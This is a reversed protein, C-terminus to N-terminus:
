HGALQHVTGLKQLGLTARDYLYVERNPENRVSLFYRFLAVNQPGLDHARIVRSDHPFIVSTNYVPEEDPASSQPTYRFLVLAKRDAAQLQSELEALDVAIVPLEGHFYGPGFIEPDRVTPNICPFSGCSLAIMAFAPVAQCLTPTYKCTLREVGFISLLILGPAVVIMYHPIFFVYFAYFGVFFLVSVLLTIRVRREGNARFPLTAAVGIPLLVAFFPHPLGFSLLAALRDTWWTQFLKSPTHREYLSVVMQENLVRKQLLPPKPVKAPDIRHFGLMPAPYTEDAYRAEPFEWWQGTMGHNQFGQLALFPLGGLLLAVAQKAYTGFSANAAALDLMMAVGIPIAYCLADAPRTIGAWGALVGTALAWRWKRRKRWQMYLLMMLLAFLLMPTQSFLMVSLCRFKTLGLLMVAAVFGYIGGVLETTLRYLLGVCAGSVLLPLLWYPLGLWIAPVYLLSTGPFYMSGYVPAVLINFSDFFPRIEPPYAEVWLRGTALMRMQILYSSEDVVRPVFWTEQVVAGFYLFFVSFVAVALATLWATSARPHRLREAASQIRSRMPPLLCVGAALGLLILHVPQGYSARLCDVWVALGLVSALALM